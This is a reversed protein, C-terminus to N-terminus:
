VVARHLPMEGDEDRVNVKAGAELLAAIVEPKEHGLANHLPTYGGKDKANVDAGAKLCRSIDAAGALYFFYTTNWGKCSDAALAPVVSMWASFCLCSAVYFSKRLTM